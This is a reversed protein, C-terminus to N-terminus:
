VDWTAGSRMLAHLDGPGKQDQAVALQRSTADAYEDRQVARFVGVPTPEFPGRALRSLVVDIRGFLGFLVM